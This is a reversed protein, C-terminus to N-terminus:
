ATALETCSQRRPHADGRCDSPARSTSSPTPRLEALYPNLVCGLFRTKIGWASATRATGSVTTQTGDARADLLAFLAIALNTRLADAEIRIMRAQEVNPFRHRTQELRSGEDTTLQPMTVALRASCRFLTAAAALLEVRRAAMPSDRRRAVAFILGLGFARKRIACSGIRGSTRGASLRRTSQGRAGRGAGAPQTGRTNTLRAGGTSPGRRSRARHWGRWRERRRQPSRRQVATAQTGRCVTPTVGEAPEIV